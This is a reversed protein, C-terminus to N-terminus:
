SYRNELEAFLELPDSLMQATTLTIQPVEPIVEYPSLVGELAIPDVM